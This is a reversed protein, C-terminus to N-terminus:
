KFRERASQLSQSFAEWALESGQKLDEWAQGSADKMAILKENLEQEKVRLEEIQRYYELRADDSAQDAKLKLQEIEHNWKTLQASLKQEYTQKNSM